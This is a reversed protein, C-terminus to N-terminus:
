RALTAGRSRPLVGLVEQCGLLHIALFLQLALTGAIAYARTGTAAQSGAVLSGAVELSGPSEAVVPGAVVCVVPGAIVGAVVSGAVVCVVPGAVVPGAVALSQSSSGPVTGPPSPCAM